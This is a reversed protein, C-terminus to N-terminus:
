VSARDHFYVVELHMWSLRGQAMLPGVVALPGDKVFPLDEMPGQVGQSRAAEHFAGDAGLGRTIM